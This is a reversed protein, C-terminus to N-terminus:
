FQYSLMLFVGSATNGTGGDSRAYDWAVSYEVSLKLGELIWEGATVSLRSKPAFGTRARGSTLNSTVGALDHSQSYTIAIFDGQDGIIEVWPNWDFQYALAVQWASPKISIRRRAPTSEDLFTAREIAGNAEGTLAFPGFTMKVAAAMGPVFGIQDLFNRYGNSLFTSDFISTNYDVHFDFSWPCVGFGRLEDYSRGCHGSTRVGLSANLNEFLGRRTGIDPDGEYLNLSGYFPPPAQPPASATPPLPKTPPPQYGLGRAVSSVLPNIALPKVTPAVVLPAPPTVPPTPFAFGLGIATKRTEFADITLPNVISLTDARAIGTSTGFPLVDRGAKAFLPFQQTDGITVTARDVTIRDVGTDFGDITTFIASAGSDFAIILSGKTWDNAKIDLDLEATTLEIRDRPPNTFDRFRDATVEIAGGLTVFENIQPGFGSLAGRIISRTADEQAAKADELDKVRQELSPTGQTRAPRTEGRDSGQATQGPANRPAADPKAEALAGVQRAFARDQSQPEDLVRNLDAVDVEGAIAASTLSIALGLIVAAARRATIRRCQMM